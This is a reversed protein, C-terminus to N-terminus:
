IRQARHVYVCLGKRKSIDVMHKTGRSQGDWLAILADSVYAMVDNRLYGATKGDREWDARYVELPIGHERAYREGLRDVGRAGGSVVTTIHIGSDRVARCVEAYDTIGRSGAIITRM